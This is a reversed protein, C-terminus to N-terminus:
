GGILVYMLCYIFYVGAIVFPTKIFAILVDKWDKIDFIFKINNGLIKAYKMCGDDGNRSILIGYLFLRTLM